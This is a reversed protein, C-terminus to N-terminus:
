VIYIYSGSGVHQHVKEGNRATLVIHATTNAPVTFQYKVSGDEQKEWWSSILGYATQLHASAHSLTGGVVPELLFEKYGPQNRMPRIGAVYEFLFDCVAGYSYHNFSNQCKTFGDWNELITTAGAKVNYLWSPCETQELLRFAEEVFGHDVLVPLLHATSLFGTNLKYDNERILVALKRAVAEKKSDDALGFALARVNPAQRGAKITGDPQIFYKNFVAKVGEARQAYLQADEAKGLIEAIDSLLRASRFYYMTATLYDPYYYLKMTENVDGSNADPECWEGFHFDTDWVYADDGANESHYWPKDQYVGSPNAAERIIYDVWKKASAYQNELIQRDGYCLYMLYPTIVATDGWGASGEIKGGNEPTGLTMQLALKLISGEPLAEMRKKKRELEEPNHVAASIPITNPVKGSAFQELSLDILWKEFFPYVDMFKSATKAYIHSDGSWPSRERTPCDTPVDMFNGKQSWRSNSVLRNILDNSCSFDGVEGMDSYVAVAIFDEPQIEGVFGEIRVYQFGFIAFTPQYYAVTEGKAVYTVKQIEAEPNELIINKQTFNGELDLTEGHQLVIKQGKPQNRLTMKVYGAINQGFNLVTEGKPTTLVTPYFCEKERVPVSLSAVLNTFTAFPDQEPHANEWASDDFDPKKWDVPEQAADFYEGEKMDNKRIAGTSTTFNTDTALWEIRGDEYELRIQGLYALKYGFNNRFAGGTNGRWWGDGLVVAWCNDGETLLDTIEYTQVQLRKYYSTFGPKFKEDTGLKGNIWFEYLGHATQYIRASQLGSRVRFIKRLCPAPMRGDKEVETEPEIWIGQWDEIILLGMEFWTIESEAIEQVGDGDQLKIIVKWYIRQCSNLQPGNWRVAINQESCVDGSDWLIDKAQSDKYTLLRYSIQKVNQFQSDLMWSFRPHTSDIGLPNTRYETKLNVVRAM